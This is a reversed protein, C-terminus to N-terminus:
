GPLWVIFRRGGVDQNAKVWKMEQQWFRWLSCVSWDPTKLWSSISTLTTACIRIRMSRQRIVLHSTKLELSFDVLSFLLLMKFFSYLYKFFLFNSWNLFEKLKFNWVSCYFTLFLLFEPFSSKRMLRNCSNIHLCLKDSSSDPVSETFDPRLHGWWTWSETTGPLFM